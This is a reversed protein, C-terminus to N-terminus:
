IKAKGANRLIGTSDYSAPNIAKRIKILNWATNTCHGTTALVDEAIEGANEGLRIFM